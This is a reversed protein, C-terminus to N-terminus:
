YKVSAFSGIADDIFHEYILLMLKDLKGEVRQHTTHKKSNIM